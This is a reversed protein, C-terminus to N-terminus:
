RLTLVAVEPPVGFRVPLKSTGIGSTVFLHRGDEVVHGRAYRGGFESHVVPPGFLPLAVQGGHTHGALVISPRADLRAFIDPEHVVVVLPMGPLSLALEEEPSRTRTEADTLGLV